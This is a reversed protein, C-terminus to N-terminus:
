LDAVYKLLSVISPLMPILIFTWTLKYRRLLLETLDFLGVFDSATVSPRILTRPHKNEDLEDMEEIYGEKKCRDLLTRYQAMKIAVTKDYKEGVEAGQDRGCNSCVGYEARPHVVSRAISELFVNEPVHSRIIHTRELKRGEHQLCGRRLYRLLWWMKITELM